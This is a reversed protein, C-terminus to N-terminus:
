WRGWPGAPTSCGCARVPGVTREACQPVEIPPRAGRPGWDGDRARGRAEAGSPRSGSPRRISRARRTGTLPAESGTPQRAACSMSAKVRHRSRCSHSSLRSSGCSCLRSREGWGARADAGKAGDVRPRGRGRGWSWRETGPAGRTRDASVSPRPEGAAVAAGRRAAAYFVNKLSAVGDGLWRERQAIAVYAYHQVLASRDAVREGFAALDARFAEDVDYVLRSSLWELVTANGKVALRVTKLLDWGNVDLVPDLPTEIVDRPPLSDLYEAAPRVYVFRCDYDSDASPFGWARSGSEVALPIAVGHERRVEELRALVSARAVDDLSTVTM